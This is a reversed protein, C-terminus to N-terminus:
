LHIRSELLPKQLYQLSGGESWPKSLGIQNGTILKLASAHRRAITKSPLHPGKSVAKFPLIQHASGSPPTGSLAKTSPQKSARQRPEAWQPRNGSPVKRNQPKTARQRTTARKPRNGNGGESNQKRARQRPLARQPWNRSPVKKKQPKTAGQRPPPRCLIACCSSSCKDLRQRQLRRARAEVEAKGPFRQHAAVKENPGTEAQHRETRHNPQENGQNHEHPSTEVQYKITRRNTQKHNARESRNETPEATQNGNPVKPRSKGQGEINWLKATGQRQTTPLVALVLSNAKPRTQLEWKQLPLFLLLLFLLPLFLSESSPFQLLLVSFWRLCLGCSLMPSVDFLCVAVMSPGFLSPWWFFALRLFFLCVTLLRHFRFYAFSLLLVSSSFRSSPLRCFHSPVLPPHPSAVM